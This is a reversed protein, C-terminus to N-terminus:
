LLKVCNIKINEKALTLTISDYLKELDLVRQKYFLIGIIGQKWNKSIDVETNSIVNIQVDYGKGRITLTNGKLKLSHEKFFPFAIIKRPLQETGEM